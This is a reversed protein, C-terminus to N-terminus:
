IIKQMTLFIFLFFFNFYFTLGNVAKFETGIEDLNTLKSNDSKTKYQMEKITGESSKVQEEKQEYNSQELYALIQSSKEGKNIRSNKKPFLHKFLQDVEEKLADRLVTKNIERKNNYIEMLGVAKKKGRQKKQTTEKKKAAKRKKKQEVVPSEFSNDSYSPRYSANPDLKNKKEM